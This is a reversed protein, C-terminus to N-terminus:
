SICHCEDVAILSLLGREYVKKLLNQLKDTM